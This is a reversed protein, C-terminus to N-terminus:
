KNFFKKGNRIVLGKTTAPVEQGFVNYTKGAKVNKQANVDAIGNASDALFNGEDLTIAIKSLWLMYGRLEKTAPDNWLKTGIPQPNMLIQNGEVLGYNQANDSDDWTVYGEEEADKIGYTFWWDGAEEQTIGLSSCSWCNQLAKYTVDKTDTNIDMTAVCSLGFGSAGPYWAYGYINAVTEYDEVYAVNAFETTQGANNRVSYSIVANAPRIDYSFVNNWVMSNSETGDDIAYCLGLAETTISGDDDIDFVVDDSSWTANDINDGVWSSLYIKWDVAGYSSTTGIYEAVYQLAPCTITKAEADYKGYMVYPMQEHCFTLKTDLARGEFTVNEKEILLSDCGANELTYDTSSYIYLGYIGDHAIRAPAKKAVGQSPNGFSLKAPVAINFKANEINVSAKSIMNDKLTQASASLAIVAACASLLFKRM